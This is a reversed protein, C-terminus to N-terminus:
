NAVYNANAPVPRVVEVDRAPEVDTNRIQVTYYLEQGEEFREAPVYRYHPSDPPGEQVRLEAVITVEIQSTAIAVSSAALSLLGALVMAPMRAAYIWSRGYQM